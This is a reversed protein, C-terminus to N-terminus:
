VKEKIQEMETDQERSPCPKYLAKGAKFNEFSESVVPERIVPTDLINNLEDKM